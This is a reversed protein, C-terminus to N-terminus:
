IKIGVILIDDIQERDGKWSHFAESLAKKQDHMIMDQIDTLLKKFRPYGFKKDNEGGFQDPFGDSFMYITDGRNLKMNFSQFLKNSSTHIGVPMRDGKLQILENKHFVYLTHNAGSFQIERSKSNLIVLSMDMGDKAEDAEGTQKLSAIVQDRLEDLLEKTDSSSYKNSIENLLSIGLMSMFAGPVGHGTCDGVAIVVRDEQKDIWIFDGSVIDRPEYFVFHKPLLFRLVDEAPLIANQIRRAYKISDTISLNQQDIYDKQEIIADRQAEIEDRQATIEENLSELESKQQEIEINRKELIARQREIETNQFELLRARRRLNRVAIRVFVTIVGAFVLIYVIFALITAYWPRSITFLYSAPDSEDGYVNLAKVHMTYKGFPLYSYDKYVASTWDSWDDDFGSLRISYKLENEQEFFPAAWRFEINNYQFDIIPENEQNQLPNITFGGKSDSKFHTGAFLISDNTIAVSRIM